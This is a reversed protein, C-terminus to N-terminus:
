LIRTGINRFDCVNRIFSIDNEEEYQNKERGNQYFAHELPFEGQLMKM